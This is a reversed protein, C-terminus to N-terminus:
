KFLHNHVTNSANVTRRKGDNVPHHCVVHDDGLVRRDPIVKTRIYNNGRATTFKSPPRITYKCYEHEFDKQHRRSSTELKM